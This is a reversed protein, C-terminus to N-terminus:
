KIIGAPRGLKNGSGFTIADVYFEGTANTSMFTMSRQSLIGFNAGCLWDGSTRKLCIVIDVKQDCGNVVRVETNGRLGPKTEPSSICRNPDTDTSAKTAVLKAPEALALKHAAVREAAAAVERDHQAKAAAAKDANIQHLALRQDQEAMLAAKAREHAEMDRRYQDAAAQNRALVEPSLRITGNPGAVEVYKPPAVVPTAAAPSAATKVPRAPAGADKSKTTKAPPSMQWDVLILEKPHSPYFKTFEGYRWQADAASTEVNCGGYLSKDLNFQEKLKERWRITGNNDATNRYTTPIISGVYNKKAGFDVSYCVVWRPEDPDVKVSTAFGISLKGDDQAAAPSILLLGGLITAGIGFVAGFKVDAGM